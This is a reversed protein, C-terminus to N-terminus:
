FISGQMHHMSLPAQAQSSPEAYANRPLLQQHILSRLGPSCKEQVDSDPTIAESTSSKGEIQNTTSLAASLSSWPTSARPQGHALPESDATTERTSAQDEPQDDTSLTASSSSWPTHPPTLFPGSWEISTSLADLAFDMNEIHRTGTLDYGQIVNEDDLLPLAAQGAESTPGLGGSWEGIHCASTDSAQHLSWDAHPFYPEPSYSIPVNSSGSSTLEIVVGEETENSKFHLSPLSDSHDGDPAHEFPLPKLTFSVETGPNTAPPVVLVLQFHALLQLPISMPM